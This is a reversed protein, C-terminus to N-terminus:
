AASDRRRDNGKTGASELVVRGDRWIAVPLGLRAHEDWAEDVARRLAQEVLQRDALREGIDRKDKDTPKM